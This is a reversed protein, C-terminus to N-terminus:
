MAFAGGSEVSLVSTSDAPSCPARLLWFGGYVTKAGFLPANSASGGAVSCASCFLWVASLSTRFGRLNNGEAQLLLCTCEQM